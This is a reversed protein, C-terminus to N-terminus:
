ALKEGIGLADHLGVGFFPCGVLLLILM